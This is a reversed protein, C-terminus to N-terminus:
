ERTEFPGRIEANQVSKPDCSPDTKELCGCTARTRTQVRSIDVSARELCEDFVVSEFNLPIGEIRQSAAWSPERRRAHHLFLRVLDAPARRSWSLPLRVWLKVVRRRSLARACHNIFFYFTGKKRSRGGRNQKEWRAGEERALRRGARPRAPQAHVLCVKIAALSATPPSTPPPEEEARPSPTECVAIERTAARSPMPPVPQSFFGDDLVPVPVPADPTVPVVPVPVPVPADPTAPQPEASLEPTEDRCPAEAAGVDGEGTADAARSLSPSQARLVADPIMPLPPPVPSKARFREAAAFGRERRSSPSACAPKLPSSPWATGVLLQITPPPAEDGSESSSASISCDDEARQWEESSASVSDDDGDERTRAPPPPPSDREAIQHLGFVKFAGRALEEEEVESDWDDDDDEEEFADDDDFLDGQKPYAASARSQPSLGTSAFFGQSM